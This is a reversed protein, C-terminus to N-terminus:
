TPNSPFHLIICNVIRKAIIEGLAFLRLSRNKKGGGATPFGRPRSRFYQINGCPIVGSLINLCTFETQPPPFGCNTCNATAIPWDARERMLLGGAKTQARSWRRWWRRGCNCRAVGGLRYVGGQVAAEGGGQTLVCLFVCLCVCMGVCMADILDRQRRGERGSSRGAEAIRDECNEVVETERWAAGRGGGGVPKRTPRWSVQSSPPDERSLAAFYKRILSIARPIYTTSSCNKLAGYVM